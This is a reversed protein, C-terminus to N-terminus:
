ACLKPSSSAGCRLQACMGLSRAAEFQDTGVSNISARLIKTSYAGNNIAFALTTNSLPALFQVLGEFKMQPVWAPLGFYIIYPIILTPMGRFIAVSVTGIARPLRKDSIRALAGILGVIVLGIVTLRIGIAGQLYLAFYTQAFEIVSQFRTFSCRAKICDHSPAAIMATCFIPESRETARHLVRAYLMVSLVEGALEPVICVAPVGDWDM